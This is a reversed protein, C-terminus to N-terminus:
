LSLITIMHICLIDRALVLNAQDSAVRARNTVTRSYIITMAGGSTSIVSYNRSEFLLWAAAKCNLYCTRIHVFRM